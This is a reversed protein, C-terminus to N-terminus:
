RRKAKSAEKLKEAKCIERLTPLYDLAVSLTTVSCGTDATQAATRGYGCPRVPNLETHVNRGTSHYQNQQSNYLLQANYKLASAMNIFCM